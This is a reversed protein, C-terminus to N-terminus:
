VLAGVVNALADPAESPLLHGIGHLSQLTHTTSLLGSARTAVDLPGRTRRAWLLTVPVELRALEEEYSENVSAV